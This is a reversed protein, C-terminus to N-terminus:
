FGGKFESPSDYVLYASLKWICAQFPHGADPMQMQECADDEAPQSGAAAFRQKNPRGQPACLECFQLHLHKVQAAPIELCVM